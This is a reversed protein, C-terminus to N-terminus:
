TTQKYRFFKNEHLRLTQQLYKPKVTNIVVPKYSIKKYKKGIRISM